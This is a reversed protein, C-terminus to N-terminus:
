TFVPLKDSRKLFTGKRVEVLIDGRPILLAKPKCPHPFLRSSRHSGRAVGVRTPTFPPATEGVPWGPGALACFAHDNARCPAHPQLPNDNVRCGIHSDPASAQIAYFLKKPLETAPVCFLGFLRFVGLLRSLGPLFFCM